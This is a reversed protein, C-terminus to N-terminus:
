FGLKVRGDGERGEENSEQKACQTESDELGTSGWPTKYPARDGLAVKPCQPGLPQPWHPDRGPRALDRGGVNGNM